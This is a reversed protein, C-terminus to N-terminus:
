SFHVSISGLPGYDAHITDGKAVAVTRTFSGALVIQGAELGTDHAALKNALWVIGMAPHGLVAASVGSEEIVGNKLLLAAVWRLDVDLPKVPRGGLIIGACAANDAINDVIRRPYKSRGDILELAPVVYDTADLVDFLTVDPGRLPKGLVFALEVEVRPVILKETAITDGDQFFMTDLLHGYDPEDIGVTSQMAKSTLGIKHGRLRAGAALKSAIIRQQIAYADAIEIGPFAQDLQTTPVGTREAEILLAAAQQRQADNLM